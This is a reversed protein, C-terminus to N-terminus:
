RGLVNRIVGDSIQSQAVTVGRQPMKPVVERNGDPDIRIVHGVMPIYLDGSFIRAAEVESDLFAPLAQRQETTM